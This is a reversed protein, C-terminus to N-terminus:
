IINKLYLYIDRNYDHVLVLTDNRIKSFIDLGCIVRFRGDIFIIDANYKRQYAQFYKKWDEVSTDRGPYGLSNSKTRLDVTLYTAKIKNKKLKKHWLVDSEVSYVILKYYSAVNTSGGSGFEFYTLNPKMFSLFSKLEKEKMFPKFKIAKPLPWEISSNQLEKLKKELYIPIKNNIKVFNSINKKNLSGANGISYCNKLKLEKEFSLLILIFFILLKYIYNIFTEIKWNSWEYEEISSGNTGRMSWLPIEM